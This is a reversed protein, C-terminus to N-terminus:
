EHHKSYGPIRRELLHYISEFKFIRSIVMILLTSIVLPIIIIKIPACHLGIVLGTLPCKTTTGFLCTMTVIIFIGLYNIIESDVLSYANVGAIGVLAGIALLPFVMGGSILSNVSLPTFFLRFILIGILALLSYDILSETILSSGGGVMINFYRKIVMFLIILGITIYILLPKIFKLDKIKITILSFLKSAGISLLVIVVLLWYYKIPLMEVEFYPLVPHHYIITSVFYSIGIIVIGKIILSLKILKKNEEILYMLGAFPAVFACSFGASGSCAELDVDEEKYLKNTLMGVCTSITISPGELGLPFGSFFAFLSNIFLLVLMKWASFKYWGRYYAEIQPLGSGFYGPIKKNLLYILGYVVLSFVLCILFIYWEKQLIENSFSILHQAIYHYVGMMIGVFLGALIVKSCSLFIKKM